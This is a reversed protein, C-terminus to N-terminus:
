LRLWVGPISSNVVYSPTPFNAPLAGYTQSAEFMTEIDTSPATSGMGLLMQWADCSLCWQITPGANFLAALCYVGPDLAFNLGTIEQAGASTTSVTGADLVLGAPVAGAATKYIGLHASGSAGATVSIGIKTFIQKQLCVFPMAYLLNASVAASSANAQGAWYYRGSLYGGFLAPLAQPVGGPTAGDGILLAARTTDYAPEGAAPTAAAVNAQTDRRLQFQDSM